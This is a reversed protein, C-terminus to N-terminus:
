RERVIFAVVDDIVVPAVHAPKEYDEVTGAGEVFLHTLSPYHKLQARPRSSLARQWGEFDVHSVQIDHDGQLVLIPRELQAAVEAPRYGRLDLFYSAPVKRGLFEIDDVVALKPDRIRQQAAEAAAVDAPTGRAKMQEVVIDELPRSGGALILLGAVRADEKGIRPALMAGLSHGLVFIRKRDIRDTAALLTVGGRADEITEERVTYRAEPRFTEPHAFWRKQYRLVAIGRSALGVGLDHFPAIPGVTENEDTSGSGHVLVVAPFPGAGRPLTLKGKLALPGVSVDREDFREPAAYPPPSWTAMPPFTLGALRGEADFVLRVDLRGKDFTCHLTTVDLGMRKTSQASDVRQFKGLKGTFQEWAQALLEPKSLAAGMQATLHAQVAAFDHALLQTL